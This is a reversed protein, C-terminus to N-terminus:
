EKSEEKTEESKQETETKEADKTEESAPESKNETLAANSERAEEFAKKFLGANESNAFRIAFLQHEAEGESFDNAVTYVWSRDSGVNPSLKMEQSVYHNACVKLTKDRRMLVRIKGLAKHELLKVDGTGREKWEAAEKDFIKFKTIEDEELTKVEIDELKIVPEFHVDQSEVVEEQTEEIKKTEADSM